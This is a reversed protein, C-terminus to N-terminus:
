NYYPMQLTNPKFYEAEPKQEDLQLSTQITNIFFLFLFSIMFVLLGSLMASPVSFTFTRTLFSQGGEGMNMINFKHDLAEPAPTHELHRATDHISKASLFFMRCTGCEGLHRFMPQMADQLLENDLLQSIQEQCEQCKM